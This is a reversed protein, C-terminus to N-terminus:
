HVLRCGARAHTPTCVHAHTHTQPFLPVVEVTNPGFPFYSIIFRLNLRPVSAFWSLMFTSIVRRRNSPHRRQRSDFVEPLLLVESVPPKPWPQAGRAASILFFPPPFFFISPHSCPLLQACIHRAGNHTVSLYCVCVSEHVHPLFDCCDCGNPFRACKRDSGGGGGGQRCDAAASSSCSALRFPIPRASVTM